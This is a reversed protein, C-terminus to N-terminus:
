QLAYGTKILLYTAIMEEMNDISLARFISQQLMLATALTYFLYPSFRDYGRGGFRNEQTQVTYQICTMPSRRCGSARTAGNNIDHVAM